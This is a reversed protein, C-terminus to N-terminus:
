ESAVGIYKAHKKAGCRKCAKLTKEGPKCAAFVGFTCPKICKFKLIKVSVRRKQRRAGGAFLGKNLAKM